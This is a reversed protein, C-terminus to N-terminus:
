THDGQEPWATQKMLDKMHDMFPVGLPEVGALISAYARVYDLLKLLYLKQEIPTNGEAEVVQCAIGHVDFAERLTADFRQKARPVESDSRVATYSFADRKGFVKAEVACTVAQEVENHADEFLTLVKIAATVCEGFQNEIRMGLAQSSEDILVLPITRAADPQGVPVEPSANGYLFHAALQKSRNHEFPVDEDWRRDLEGLWDAAASFGLDDMQFPRRTGDELKAVQLHAFLSLFTAMSFGTSERPQQIRDDGDFADVPIRIFVDGAERAREELAGGKAVCLVPCKKRKAADHWALAEETNGSYSSVAVLTDPGLPASKDPYHRHISVPLSYGMNKLIEVAVTPGIASGGLGVICVHRPRAQLARLAEAAVEIAKGWYRPLNAIRHTMKHCDVAARLAACDLVDAISMKGLLAAMLQRRLLNARFGLRDLAFSEEPLALSFRSCLEADETCVLDVLREKSLPKLDMMM